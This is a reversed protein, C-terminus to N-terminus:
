GTRWQVGSTSTQLSLLRDHATMFLLSGDAGGFACNATARGTLIRALLVGDSSLVHVGGPGTAFVHGDADVALGDPYGSDGAALFASTDHWLELAGVEGNARLAARYVHPADPDSQTIYLWREDPSLAVGNPLTLNDFLRECVGDPTLRYVGNVSMEKLPSANLGELGYPPDTFFLSGDSALILDNPSNLRQGEFRDVLTEREGTAARLRQVARTGHNCLYLWDGNRDYWLGNSGPERLGETQAAEIGSPDLFVELGHSESWRWARNEPVDSFYLCQRAWDWAPGESWVFGRAREELASSQGFLAVASAQHVEIFDPLARPSCGSLGALTTGGLGAFMQRRTM